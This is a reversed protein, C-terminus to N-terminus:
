CIWVEVSEITVSSLSNLSFGCLVCVCLSVPIMLTNSIVFVTRLCKGFDFSRKKILARINM